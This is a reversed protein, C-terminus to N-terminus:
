LLVAEDTKLFKTIPYQSFISRESDDLTCLLQKAEEQEDLLLFAGIKTAVDTTTEIIKSLRQKEGYTLKRQRAVIQLANITAIDEPFYKSLGVLWNAIQSCVDLLRPDNQQDYAKLMELMVLNTHNVSVECPAIDKLDDMVKQLNLNDATLFHDAKLMAFQSVSYSHKDILFQM